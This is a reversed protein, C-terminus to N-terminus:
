RAATATENAWGALSAVLMIAQVTNRKSFQQRSVRHASGHRSFKRPVPRGKDEWFKELLVVRTDTRFGTPRRSRGPSRRHRRPSPHDSPARGQRPLSNEAHLRAHEVRPSPRRQPPRGAGCSDGRTRLRDGIAPRTPGTNAAPGRLRHPNGRVAAGPDSPQEGSDKARVLSAAISRRPVLYLPIGEDKVFHLVRVADIGRVGRLNPPLLVQHLGTPTSAPSGFREVRGAIAALVANGEGFTAALLNAFTTQDGAWRSYTSGLTETVAPAAPLFRRMWDGPPEQM